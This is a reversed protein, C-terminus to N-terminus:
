FEDEQEEELDWNFGEPLNKLTFFTYALGVSMVLSGIVLFKNINKM